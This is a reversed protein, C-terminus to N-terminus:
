IHQYSGCVVSRPEQRFQSDPGRRPLVKPGEQGSEGRAWGLASVRMTRGVWSFGSRSECM